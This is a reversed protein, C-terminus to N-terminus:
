TAGEVYDEEPEEDIIILAHEELPDVNANGNM